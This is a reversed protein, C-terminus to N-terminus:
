ESRVNNKYNKKWYIHSLKQMKQTETLDSNIIDIMDSIEDERNLKKILDMSKDIANKKEETM